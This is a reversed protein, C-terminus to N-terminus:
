LACSLGRGLPNNLRFHWGHWPLSVQGLPLLRNVHIAKMPLARQTRHSGTGDLGNYGGVPSLPLGDGSANPAQGLLAPWHSTQQQFHASEDEMFATILIDRNLHLVPEGGLGM